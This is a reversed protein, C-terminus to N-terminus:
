KHVITVRENLQQLDYTEAITLSTVADIAEEESSHNNYHTKLFDIIVMGIMDNEVPEDALESSTGDDISM